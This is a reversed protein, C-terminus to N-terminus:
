CSRKRQTTRGVSSRRSNPPATPANPAMPSCPSTSSKTKSAPAAATTAGLSFLVPGLCLWHDGTLWPFLLGLRRNTEVDFGVTGYSPEWGLFRGSDPHWQATQGLHQGLLRRDQADRGRVSTWGSIDRALLRQGDPSTNIVGVRHGNSFNELPGFAGTEVDLPVINQGLAIWLRRSDTTWALLQPDNIYFGTAEPFQDYSAVLKGARPDWLRVTKDEATSALRTGDPSWALSSITGTHGALEHEIKGTAVNWVRVLKDTAGTALWKGDPSWAVRTVNGKDHSLEHQKVGTEADVIQMTPFNQTAIGLLKGDPSPHPSSQSYQDVTQPYSRLREGTATDNVCIKGFSQNFMERGDRSLASWGGGGTGAREKGERLKQGTSTDYFHLRSGWEFVAQKGEDLLAIPSNGANFKALREGTETDFVGGQDGASAALRKSDPLWALAHSSYILRNADFTKTVALTKADRIAVKGDSGQMALWQGDPSWELSDSLPCEVDQLVKLTAVDWIRLLSPKGSDGDTASSALKTSDPSWALGRGRQVDAPLRMRGTALDFIFFPTKYQDETSVALQKSDPSFKLGHTSFIPSPILAHLAGTAVNWIRVTCGLTDQCAGPADGSALWRGDSSFHLSTM